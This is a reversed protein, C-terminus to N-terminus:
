KNRFDKVKVFIFKNSDHQRVPLGRVEPFAARVVVALDNGDVVWDAYQFGHFFPDPDSLITARETWNRLDPSSILVLKNRRLSNQLGAAYIGEHSFSGETHPNTLSWYLGSQADYRVTFKKGGGPMSVWDTAADYALTTTGSVHLLTAYNSSAASNSRIINVVSGDPAEVVNGEIMSSIRDAGIYYSTATVTNTATWSAADLLDTDVPASIVFPKKSADDDNYTECARWIRGGSVICPVQATHYKGTLLLGTTSGDPVSWTRGNDSSRSVRFGERDAAVGFLYVDNGYVFLNTYNEILNVASSYEGFPAWTAGHDTSRFMSIGEKEKVGTCAALLNGDPLLAICVNSVTGSRLKAVESITVDGFDSVGQVRIAHGFVFPARTASATAPMSIWDGLTYNDAKFVRYTLTGLLFTKGTATWGPLTEEVSAILPEESLGFRMRTVGKSEILGTACQVSHGGFATLADDAFLYNDNQPFAKQGKKVTRVDILEGEVQVENAALTEPSGEQIWTIRRALPVASFTGDLVPIEVRAGASVIKSFIALTIISSGYTCNCTNEGASSDAVLTWGSPVPSAPALIYVPGKIDTIIVGGNHSESNSVLMEFGAFYPHLAGSLVAHKDPMVVAGAEYVARTYGTGDVTVTDPTGKEVPDTPGCAGCLLLALLLPIYRLGHKM